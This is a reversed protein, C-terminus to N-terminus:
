PQVAEDKEELKADPKWLRKEHATKPKLGRVKRPTLAWSPTCSAKARKMVDESFKPEKKVRVAKPFTKDEILGLKKLLWKLPNL